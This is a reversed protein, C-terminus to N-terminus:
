LTPDQIHSRVVTEGSQITWDVMQPTKKVQRPSGPSDTVMGHLSGVKHLEGHVKKNYLELQREQNKSLSKRAIDYANSLSQQLKTAYETSEPEATGYMLDTPIRAQRGFMLYFPTFGTTGHVSSNYAMCAKRVQDEWDEPHGDVCTFLMGLLM